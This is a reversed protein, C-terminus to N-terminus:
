GDNRVKSLLAESSIGNVYFIKDKELVDPIVEKIRANEKSNDVFNVPDFKECKSIEIVSMGQEALHADFKELAEKISTALVVGIGVIFESGDFNLPSYDELSAKNYILWASKLEM